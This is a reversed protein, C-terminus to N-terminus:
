LPAKQPPIGFFFREKRMGVFIEREHDREWTTHLLFFVFLSFFLVSEFYNCHNNEIKGGNKNIGLEERTRVGGDTKEKEIPFRLILITRFRSGTETEARFKM